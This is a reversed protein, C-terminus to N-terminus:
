GKQNNVLSGFMSALANMCIGYTLFIVLNVAFNSNSFYTSAPIAYALGLMLLAPLLVFVTQELFTVTWYVSDKLGFLRLYGRYGYEKDGVMGVLSFVFPMSAALYMLVLQM